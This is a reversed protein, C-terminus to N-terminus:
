KVMYGFFSVSFDIRDGVGPAASAVCTVEIPVNVDIPDLYVPVGNAEPKFANFAVNGTAAPQVEQGIKIESITLLIAAAGTRAQDTVIRVTRLPRQSITKLVITTAGGNVFAGAPFPMYGFREGRAPTGPAISSMVAGQPMPPLTAGFANGGGGRGQALSALKRMMAVPSLGARKAVKRVRRGIELDDDGDVGELAGMLDGLGDAEDWGGLGDAENWGGLAALLNDDSSAGCVATREFPAGVLGAALFPLLRTM